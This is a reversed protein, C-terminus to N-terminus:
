SSGTARSASVASTAPRVASSLPCHDAALTPTRSRLRAPGSPLPAAPAPHPPRTAPLRPPMRASGPARRRPTGGCSPGQEPPPRREGGSGSRRAFRPFRAAEAPHSARASRSTASKSSAGSAPQTASIRAPAAGVRDLGLAQGSLRELASPMGGVDVQLQAGEALDAGGEDRHAPDRLPDRQQVLRHGAREAALGPAQVRDDERAALHDDRAGAGGLVLAGALPDARGIVEGLAVAAGEEVGDAAREVPPHQEGRAPPHPGLLFERGRELRDVDAWRVNRPSARALSASSRRAWPRM